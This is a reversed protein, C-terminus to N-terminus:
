HWGRRPRKAALLLHFEFGCGEATPANALIRDGLLVRKLGCCGAREGV